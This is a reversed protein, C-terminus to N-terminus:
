VRGDFDYLRYVSVTGTQAAVFFNSARGLYLVLPTDAAVPFKSNGVAGGDSAATDALGSCVWVAADAQITVSRADTPATFEQWTTGVSAAVDATRPLAGADDIAAM